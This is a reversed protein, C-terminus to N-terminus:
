IANVYTFMSCINIISNCLMPLSVCVCVRVCVRVCVCVCVSSMSVEVSYMLGHLLLRWWLCKVLAALLRPQHGSKKRDLENEWYRLFWICLIFTIYHLPSLVVFALMRSCKTIYAWLLDFLYVTFMDHVDGTSSGWYLTLHWIVQYVICIKMSSTRGIDKLCYHIWGGSTYVHSWMNELKSNKNSYAKPVHLCVAYSLVAIVM